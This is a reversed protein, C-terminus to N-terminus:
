ERGKEFICVAVQDVVERDPLPLGALGVGQVPEHGQRLPLPVVEVVEADDGRDFFGQIPRWAVVVLEGELLRQMLHSVPTEDEAICKSEIAIGRILTSVCMCM